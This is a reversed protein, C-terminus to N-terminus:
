DRVAQDIIRLRQEILHEVGELAERDRVESFVIQNAGYHSITLLDWRIDSKDSSSWYPNKRVLFQTLERTPLKRPQRWPLPGHWIRLTTSDVSVETRNYMYCVAIYAFFLGAALPILSLAYPVLSGEFYWTLGIGLLSIAVLAGALKFLMRSVGRDWNAAFFLTEGNEQVTFTARLREDDHERRPDLGLQRQIEVPVPVDAGCHRCRLEAREPPPELTGACNPCILTIRNEATADKSPPPRVVATTDAATSSSDRLATLHATLLSKIAKPLTVQSEHRILRLIRGDHCVAHLEYSVDRQGDSETVKRYVHFHDLERLPIRTQWHCPIPGHWVQLESSSSAIETRNCCCCLAAHFLGAVTVLAGLSFFSNFLNPAKWSSLDLRIPGFMGSSFFGIVIALIVFGLVGKARSWNWRVFLDTERKEIIFRSLDLNRRRVLDGRQGKRTAESALDITTADCCPCRFEATRSSTVVTVGCQPCQNTFDAM